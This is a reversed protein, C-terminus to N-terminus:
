AARIRLESVHVIKFDRRFLRSGRDMHGIRIATNIDAITKKIELRAALTTKFRHPTTVNNTDTETWCDEWGSTTSTLVAFNM